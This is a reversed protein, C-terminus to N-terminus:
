KGNGKINKYYLKLKKISKKIICKIKYEGM